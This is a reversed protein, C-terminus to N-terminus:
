RGDGWDQGAIVFGNERLHAPNELTERARTLAFCFSLVWLAQLSLLSLCDFGFRFRYAFVSYLVIFLALFFCSHKVKGELLDCLVL